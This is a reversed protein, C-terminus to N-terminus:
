VKFKCVRVAILHALPGNKDSGEDVEMSLTYALLLPEPSNAKTGQCDSLNFYWFRM